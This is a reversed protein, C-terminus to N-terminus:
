HRVALKPQPRKGAYHRLAMMLMPALRAPYRRADFGSRFRERAGTGLRGRLGEDAVARALADSLQQVSGPEVLLGSRDAEIVEGLAGVATCVICLGHAMGELVSMAMGEAYSPLVLIDAGNLLDVIAPRDVWGPMSVRGAIATAALQREFIAQHPGGGAITARWSLGRMTPQDLANILDHVGKRESLQGLFLIHVPSLARAPPSPPEPVANPLVSVREAPVGLLDTVTARANEGLVIVQDAARFMWRVAALLPAPLSRCFREYDYDHLHLVMPMDRLRCFAAVLFKRLTSGRGAVHIYVLPMQPAHSQIAWLTSLLRRPWLRLAGPGRPDLIDFEPGAPDRGWEDALYGVMRGIGGGHELGGATVILIRPLRAGSDPSFETM